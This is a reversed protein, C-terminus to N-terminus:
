SSNFQGSHPLILQVQLCIESGFLPLFAPMETVVVGVFVTLSFSSNFSRISSVSSLETDDSSSSLSLRASSILM